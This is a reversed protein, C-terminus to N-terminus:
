RQLSPLVVDVDDLLEDLVVNGACLDAQEALAVHADAVQDGLRHDFVNFLVAEIILVTGAASM